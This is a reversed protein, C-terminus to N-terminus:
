QASPDKAGCLHGIMAVHPTSPKSEGSTEAAAAPDKSSANLKKQANNWEDRQTRSRRRCSRSSNRWWRDARCRALMSPLSVPVASSAVDLVHELSSAVNRSTSASSGESSAETEWPRWARSPESSSDEVARKSAGVTGKWSRDSLTFRGPKSRTSRSNSWSPRSSADVPHQPPRRRTKCPTVPDSRAPRTAATIPGEPAPFVVSKFTREPRQSRRALSLPRTRTLPSEANDKFDSDGKTAKTGCSSIMHRSSVTRSSKSNEAAARSGAAHVCARRLATTLSTKRTKFSTPMRCATTPSSSRLPMEPPWRLLTFTPM